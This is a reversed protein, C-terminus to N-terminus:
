TLLEFSAKKIYSRKIKTLSIVTNKIMNLSFITDRKKQDVIM